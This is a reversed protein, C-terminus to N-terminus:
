LLRTLRLETQAMGMPHDAEHEQPLTISGAGAFMELSADGCLLEEASEGGICTSDKNLAHFFIGIPRPPNPDLFSLRLARM